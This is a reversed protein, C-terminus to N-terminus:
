SEQLLRLDVRYAFRYLGFDRDYYYVVLPKSGIALAGILPGVALPGRYFLHFEQFRVEGMCDRLWSRFERILDPWQEVEVLGPHHYSRIREDGIDQFATVSRRVLGADIPPFGISILLTGAQPSVAEETSTPKWSPPQYAPVTVNFWAGVDFKLEQGTLAKTDEIAKVLGSGAEQAWELELLYKALAPNRWHTHGKAEDISKFRVLGGPSEFEIRDPFVYIKTSLPDRYERHALANVLIEKLAEESYRRRNQGGNRYPLTKDTIMGAEAALVGMVERMLLPIPGFFENSSFIADARTLGQFRTVKVFAGPFFREPKDGILLIAFRNPTVIDGSPSAIRSVLPRASGFMLVGPQLFEAGTGGVPRRGKSIEALAVPSLDDLTAGPCPQDLWDLHAKRLVLDSHQQPAAGTTKDGRRVVVKGKFFHVESSAGIWVVLVQKDAELTVFDFRPAISPKVREFSLQFIRNQLRKSEGSSIGVVNPTSIGDAQKNEEVGCIVSGGGSEEYDNAFAALTEVIDEPDGTKKWDLSNSEDGLM